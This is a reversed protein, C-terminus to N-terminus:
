SHEFYASNYPGPTLLAVTPSTMEYPRVHQLTQLLRSPYEDVPRVRSAEFVKPFTRKMVHRNELVYSVGSPCRLNDELVYFRGDKDRVLDIGSVHCWIGKPPTLGVCQPLFGKSSLVVDRPIVGEDLIRQKGYVDGIFANLALIRQRVGREVISWEDAELIRPVIDFPFIKDAGDDNGYVNFTIGRNLLAREAAKQRFLLDEMSLGELRQSLIAAGRRPRGAAEFM